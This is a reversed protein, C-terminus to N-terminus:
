EVATAEEQETQTVMSGGAGILGGREEAVLGTRWGAPKSEPWEV